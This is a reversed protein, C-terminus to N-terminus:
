SIKSELRQIEKIIEAEAIPPIVERAVKALAANIIEPTLIARVIEPLRAAIEAEVAAQLVEASIEPAPPTPPMECSVPPTEPPSPENVPSEIDVKPTTDVADSVVPIVMPCLDIAEPVAPSENEAVVLNSELVVIDAPNEEVKTEPIGSLLCLDPVGTQVLELATSLDVVSPTPDISVGEPTESLATPEISMMPLMTAPIDSLAVQSPPDALSPAPEGATTDNLRLANTISTDSTAEQPPSLSTGNDAPPPVILSGNGNFVVTEASPTPMWQNVAQRLLDSDIPKRISAQIGMARLRDTDCSDNPSMLVIIPTPRPSHIDTRARNVFAAVNMEELDFDALILDPPDRRASDLAAPGSDVVTVSMGAGRLVSAVMRQVTLNDDALLVRSM